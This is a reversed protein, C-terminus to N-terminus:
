RNTICSIDEDNLEYSRDYHRIADEFQKSKYATNGKAKEEAAQAKKQKMEIEESSEAEEQEVPSREITELRGLNM